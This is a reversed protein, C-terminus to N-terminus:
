VLLFYSSFSTDDGGGSVPSLPPSYVLVDVVACHVNVVVKVSVEGLAWFYTHSMVVLLSTSCCSEGVM